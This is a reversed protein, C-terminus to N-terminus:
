GLKADEIEKLDPIVDATGLRTVMLASAQTALDLAQRIPLGRDLGAVLYGTFTDGAGTTDVTVVEIAPVRTETGSGNLWRCGDSGLTVVVNDIGLAHVPKGLADELQEAEVQNLVLLDVLHLVDRVAEADFPAAAYVVRLGLQRAMEAAERQGNTENQTLFTDGPSAETLASGVSSASIAKNSGSFLVIQNEGDRAVAINAHGTAQDPMVQIPRTDVGYEMLREVTWAGDKGVAGIHAVRAAARAIAVSMNAGKGGLGQSFQTAALTEGAAPLHPVRYVNDINISGLNWVAM